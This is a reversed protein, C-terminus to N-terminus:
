EDFAVMKYVTTTLCALPFKIVVNFSSYRAIPVSHPARAACLARAERRARADELAHAVHQGRVGPSLAPRLPVAM